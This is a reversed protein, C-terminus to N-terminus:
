GFFVILFPRDGGDPANGSGTQVIAQEDPITCPSFNSGLAATAYAPDVLNTDSHEVTVLVQRPTFTLGRFCFFGATADAANRVNADTINLSRAEDVDAKNDAGLQVRAYGLVPGPIAGPALDTAQVARDKLEGSGIAGTKVEATSVADRRVESATVADKAIQASGVSNRPLTAAYSTGGLAVFLALYAVANSRVHGKLKRSM